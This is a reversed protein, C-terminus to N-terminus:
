DVIRRDGIPEELEVTRSDQCDDRGGCGYGFRTSATVVVVDGSVDISVETSPENCTNVWVGLTTGDETM